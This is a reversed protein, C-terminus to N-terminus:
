RMARVGAEYRRVGAGLAAAVTIEFIADESYGAGKLREVDSDTVKYAHRVVKEIYSALDDPVGTGEYAATRIAQDVVGPGNVVRDRLAEIKDAHRM